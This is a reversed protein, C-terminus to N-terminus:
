FLGEGGRGLISVVFPPIATTKCYFCWHVVGAFGLKGLHDLNVDGSIVETINKGWIGLKLIIM